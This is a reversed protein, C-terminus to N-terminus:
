LPCIQGGSRPYRRGLEAMRALVPGDKVAKVSRYGLASRSVKLLTCAGGGAAESTSCSASGSEVSRVASSTRAISSTPGTSKRRHQFDGALDDLM